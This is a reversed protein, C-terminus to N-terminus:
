GFRSVAFAGIGGALAPEEGLVLSAALDAVQPGMLIGNRFLGAALVFGPVSAPADIIPLDDATGPRLGSWRDIIQAGALAPVARIAAAALTNIADDSVTKDFGAREVTAGVLIRGEPRQLLYVPDALLVSSFLPSRAALFLAQGRVPVIPAHLGVMAAIEGAWAGAADVVHAASFTGTNTHVVFRHEGARDIGVVETHFSLEAGRREAAGAIAAAAKPSSLHHEIGLWLAAKAGSVELAPERQKAQAPTLVEARLGRDRHGQAKAEAQAVAEATFLLQLGPAPVLEVDVGTEVFLEPARRLWRQYSALGLEFLPAGVAEHQASLLGAAAGSAEAGPGAGRELVVCRRARRALEYAVSTGVIGGGIIIVDVNQM